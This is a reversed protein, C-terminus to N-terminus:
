PYRKGWGPKGIRTEPTSPTAAAPVARVTVETEAPSFGRDWGPKTGLAASETSPGVCAGALLCCLFCPFLPFVKRM